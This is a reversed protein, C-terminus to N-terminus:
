LYYVVIRLLSVLLTTINLWINVMFLAYEEDLEGKSENTQIEVQKSDKSVLAELNEKTLQILQQLDSQLSLLSERETDDDVTGLTSNVM